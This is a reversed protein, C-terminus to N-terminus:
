RLKVLYRPAAGPLPWADVLCALDIVRGMRRLTKHPIPVSITLHVVSILHDRMRFALRTGTQHHVVTTGSCQMSLNKRLIM